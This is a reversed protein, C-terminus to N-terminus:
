PKYEGYIPIHDEEPISPMHNSSKTGQVEAVPSLPDSESEYSTPLANRIGNALMMQQNCHVIEAESNKAHLLSLKEEEEEISAFFEALERATINRRGESEKRRQRLDISAMRIERETRGRFIKYYQSYCLIWVGGVYAYAISADFPDYRVHVDSKIVGPQNFKEAMYYIYNIKVGNSPVVRATGKKTTPM